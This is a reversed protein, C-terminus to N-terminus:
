KLFENTFGLDKLPKAELDNEELFAKYEPLEELWTYFGNWRDPNIEGWSAADDIYKDALYAQSAKILEPDGEPANSILIEAAEEPHKSCYEYGKKMARLAAKALEPTSVLFDNNAIIVPTYYDLEPAYDKLLFIKADEGNKIANTYDWGEYVFISDFMGMKLATTADTSEGPILEIEDWNGGDGNVMYKITADDIPDQWTSYKKGTMDKPSDIGSDALCMIGGTNHQIIAAVATIPTDRLLRKVMNPQFYIGFEARGSGVIASSSDEAPQVIDMEIGEEEFYGLDKAVFIGTHNTNPVWDLVLTMKKLEKKEAETSEEKKSESTEEEKTESKEETKSTSKAKEEKPKEQNEDVSTKPIACSTFSLLLITALLFTIKKM